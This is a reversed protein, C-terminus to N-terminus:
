ASKKNRFLHYRRMVENPTQWGSRKRPTDNCREALSALYQHSYQAIDSRKPIRRRLLKNANEIGPKQWSSYPDCFYTKVGLCMHLRNEQGNDLTLSKPAVLGLMSKFARKATSPKLNPVRRADLYMVLPNYLTIISVTNWSSVIADGEYDKRTMRSREHISVREPILVRRVKKKTRKKRRYRHSLLYQCYPSGYPDYLWEYIATKSVYGPQRERHMRGSVAEPALGRKLQGIVYHKLEPISQIKSFQYRVEHTRVYAKHRAKIPDYIGRVRNRKIERSISSQSLGLAWAIEDHPYGRSM